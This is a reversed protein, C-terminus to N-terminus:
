SSLEPCFGLRPNGNRMGADSLSFQTWGPICPLFVFINCSQHYPENPLPVQWWTQDGSTQNKLEVNYFSGIVALQGRVDIYMHTNIYIMVLFYSFLLSSFYTHRSHALSLQQWKPTPWRAKQPLALTGPAWQPESFHLQSALLEFSGRDRDGWHLSWAWVMDPKINTSAKPGGSKMVVM